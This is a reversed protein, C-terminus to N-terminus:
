RSIEEVPVSASTEAGDPMTAIVGSVWPRAIATSAAPLRVPVTSDRPVRSRFRISVSDPVSSAPMVGPGAPM